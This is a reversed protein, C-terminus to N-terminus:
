QPEPTQGLHVDLVGNVAAPERTRQAPTFLMKASAHAALFPHFIM